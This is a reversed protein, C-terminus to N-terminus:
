EDGASLDNHIAATHQCSCGDANETWDELMQVSQLTELLETIKTALQIRGLVGARGQTSRRGM